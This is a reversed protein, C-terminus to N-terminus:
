VSDREQVRVVCYLREQIMCADQVKGQGWSEFGMNVCLLPFLALLRAVHKAVSEFPISRDLQCLNRLPMHLV